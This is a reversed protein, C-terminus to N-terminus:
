WLVDFGMVTCVERFVPANRPNLDKIDVSTAEERLEIRGFRGSGWFYTRGVVCDVDVVAYQDNKVFSEFLVLREYVRVRSRDIRIFAPSGDKLQGFQVYSVIPSDEAEVGQFKAYLARELTAASSAGSFIFILFLLIKM